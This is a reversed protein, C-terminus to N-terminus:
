QRRRRRRRRVTNVHVHATSDQEYLVQMGRTSRIHPPPSRGHQQFKGRFSKRVRQMIDNYRSGPIRNTGPFATYYIASTESSCRYLRGTYRIRAITYVTRIPGRISEFALRVLVGRRDRRIRSPCSSLSYVRLTYFLARLFCIATHREQSSFNAVAARRGRPRVASRTRQLSILM